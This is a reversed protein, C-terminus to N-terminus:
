DDGLDYFMVSGVSLYGFFEGYGVKHFVGGLERVMEDGLYYIMSGSYLETFVGPMGLNFDWSALDPAARKGSLLCIAPNDSDPHESYSHHNWVYEVAYFSGPVPTRVVKMTTAPRGLLERKGPTPKVLNPKREKRRKTKSM